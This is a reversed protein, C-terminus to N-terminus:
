VGIVTKTKADGTQCLAVFITVMFLTVKNHRDLGQYSDSIQKYSL